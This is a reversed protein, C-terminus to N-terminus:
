PNTNPQGQERELAAVARLYDARDELFETSRRGPMTARAAAPRGPWSRWSTARAKPLRVALTAESTAMVRRRQRFQKCIYRRSSNQGIGLHRMPENKRWQGDAGLIYEGKPTRELLKKGAIQAVAAVPAGQKDAIQKYKAQREANIQDVMARVDAPANADVVGVYGDIREGVQGAAKAQDLSAALAPAALFGLSLLVIAVTRLVPVM